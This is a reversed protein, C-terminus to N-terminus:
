KVIERFCKLNITYSKSIFYYPIVLVQKYQTSHLFVGKRKHVITSKFENNCDFYALLCDKTNTLDILTVTNDNKIQVLIFNENLKLESFDVINKSFTVKNVEFNILNEDFYELEIKADM